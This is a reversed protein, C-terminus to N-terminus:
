AIPEHARLKGTSRNVKGSKGCDRCQSQTRRPHTVGSNSCKAPATVMEVEVDKCCHACPAWKKAEEAPIITPEGSTIRRRQNACEFSAHKRNGKATRYFNM